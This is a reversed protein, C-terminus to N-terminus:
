CPCPWAVHHSHGAAVAAAVVAAPGGAAARPGAAARGLDMRVTPAVLFAIPNSDLAQLAAEVAAPSTAPAAKPAAGMQSAGTNRAKPKMAAVIEIHSHARPGPM